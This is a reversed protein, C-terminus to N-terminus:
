YGGGGPDSSFRWDQAVCVQRYGIRRYIRNSVPNALDATLFCFRRGRELLHHTTGAVLATAYGQGRLAPPTYVPGVRAGHPTYSGYAALSVPAGDRVWLDVGGGDGRLRAALQRRVLDRPAQLHLERNFADYWEEVLDGDAPTAPRAAGPPSAPAGAQDAEFVGQSMHLTAASGTRATWELAIAAAVPVNATVGTLTPMAVLLADVAARAVAGPDPAEAAIDSVVANYPPTTLVAALVSDGAEISAFFAGEYLHPREVLTAAIGLLLSHACEHQLLLPQM